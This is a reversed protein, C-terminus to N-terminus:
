AVAPAAEVGAEGIAAVEEAAFVRDIDLVIVFGEGHRGMGRIFETSVSTGLRPPPEVQEPGLEVVEQVSDALAGLMSREGGVSVEAIIICTNVTREAAPMGFKVRLDVVPVVAGRLNIVGRMFTPLRPVRTIPSFDLVERVQGIELAFVEEGLRFTLFQAAQEVKTAVM